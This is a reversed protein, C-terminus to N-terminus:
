VLEEEHYFDDDRQDHDPFDSFEDYDVVRQGAPHGTSVPPGRPPDWRGIHRLIKELGAPDHITAIIKLLSGCKPCTLPDVGYIKRIMRAWSSRRKKVFENEEPLLPEDQIVQGRRETSAAAGFYRIMAERPAPVHCLLRVLFEKADIAQFNSKTSPNYKGRYVAVDSGPEYSLRALSIPPKLVYCAIRELQATDGAAVM